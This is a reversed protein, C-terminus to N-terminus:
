AAHQVAQMGFGLPTRLNLFHKRGGEALAAAAASWWEGAGGAAIVCVRRAGKHLILCLCYATAALSRLCRKLLPVTLVHREFLCLDSLPTGTDMVIQESPDPRKGAM